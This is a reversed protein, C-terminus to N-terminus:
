AAAALLPRKVNACEARASKIIEVLRADGLNQLGGIQSLTSVIREVGAEMRGMDRVLEANLSAQALNNKDADARERELQEVRSAMSGLLDLVYEGRWRDVPARELMEIDQRINLLNAM